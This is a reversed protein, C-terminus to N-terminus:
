NLFQASPVVWFVGPRGGAELFRGNYPQRKESCQIQNEQSRLRDSDKRESIESHRELYVLDIKFRRVWMVTIDDNHSDCTRQAM